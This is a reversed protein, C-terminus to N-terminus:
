AAPRGCGQVLLIVPATEIGGLVMTCLWLPTLVWTQAWHIANNHRLCLGLEVRHGDSSHQGWKGGAGLGRTVVKFNKKKKLNRTKKKKFVLLPLFAKLFM